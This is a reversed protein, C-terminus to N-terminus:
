YTGCEERVDSEGHAGREERVTENEMFYKRGCVDCTARDQAFGLKNSCWCVYGRTRAPVGYVFAYDPVDKTVVSGAGIFAYRGITNGCVITANAGVSAGKKVLTRKYEDKREIFSRPNIVNTFVCSPGLFVDDECIVGTYLHVNNQIKVNDGIAVGPSILVNQGINCNAGIRSDRMIHSFHWIKTGEGIECPEDVYSSPHIFVDKM